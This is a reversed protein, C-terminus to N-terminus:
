HLSNMLRGNRQTSVPALSLTGRLASTLSFPHTAFSFPCHPTNNPTETENNPLGCKHNPTGPM